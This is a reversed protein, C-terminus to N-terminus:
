FFCWIVRLIERPSDDIWDGCVGIYGVFIVMKVRIEVPLYGFSYSEYSFFRM